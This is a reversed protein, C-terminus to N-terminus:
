WATFLGVDKTIQVSGIAAMSNEVRRRLEVRAREDVSSAVRTSLLYAILPEPETVVLADDYRHREVHSFYAVLQAGGNELYLEV